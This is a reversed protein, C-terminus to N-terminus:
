VAASAEIGAIHKPSSLLATEALTRGLVVDRKKSGPRTMIEEPRGDSASDTAAHRWREGESAAHFERGPIAAGCAFDWRAPGEFFNRTCRWNWSLSEPAASPRTCSRTQGHRIRM